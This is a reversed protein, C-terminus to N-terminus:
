IWSGITPSLMMLSFGVLGVFAFLVVISYLSSILVWAQSFMQLQLKRM